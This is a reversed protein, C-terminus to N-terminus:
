AAKSYVVNRSTGSAVIQGLGRLRQITKAVAVDDGGCAAVLEKKTSPKGSALATLVVADPVDDHKANKRKPASRAPKTPAAKKSASKKASKAPKPEDKSKSARKAPAKKSTAKKTKITNKESMVQFRRGYPLAFRERM